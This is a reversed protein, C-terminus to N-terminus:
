QSFSQKKESLKEEKFDGRSRSRRLASYVVFSM